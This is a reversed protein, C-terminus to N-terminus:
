HAVVVCFSLCGFLVSCKRKSWCIESQGPMFKGEDTEKLKPIFIKKDTKESICVTKRKKKNSEPEASPLLFM